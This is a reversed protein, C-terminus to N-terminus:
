EDADEGSRRQLLYNIPGIAVWLVELWLAMAIRPGWSDLLLDREPTDGSSPRRANRWFGRVARPSRALALRATRPNLLIKTIWAGLGNGYGKAQTRLAALDDRHRHWVIASPQFVLSHGGLIVRTFMDIDEGGGTRTGVGLSTDFAGLALAACRDVAFNAGTGFAGVCFPFTPLDVPPEALSYVRPSLRKSWSVRDEFYGQAESRMEGAPVLGTVCKVDGARAFGAALERLWWKDVVVDDDTYAVIESQSHRLGANRAHSLGPVPETVLRVRPDPFVVRVLDSTASDTPANDVVVVDFTPYDLRLVASLSERLMEARDRTCIVVTIAPTPASDPVPEAAPLSAAAAELARRDLIGGRAQVDVFGRVSLGERVLLRARSYGESNRLKLVAHGLLCDIDIAGIWRAGQWKPKVHSPMAQVLELVFNKAAPLLERDQEAM